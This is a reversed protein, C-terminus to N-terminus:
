AAHADFARCYDQYDALTVAALAHATDGIRGVWGTDGAFAELADPTAAGGRGASRLQAWAALRAMTSAVEILGSKGRAIKALDLRDASPQLEKLVFPSGGFAVAALLNPAVAQCRQQTTAVREAENPWQPQKVRTRPALTSATAAKLDLLVNGDPSGEGEVLVVFRAIGLSGTGAIRRAADIFNYFGPNGAAKGYSVCFKQLAAKDAASAVLTRDSPAILTRRGKAKVTRRDLLRARDRSKLGAMLEGIAGTATRRERKWFQRKRQADPHRRHERNLAIIGKKKMAM